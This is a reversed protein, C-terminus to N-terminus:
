FPIEDDDFKGGPMQGTIDYVTQAIEDFGIGYEMIMAAIADPYRRILDAIQREEAAKARSDNDDFAGGFDGLPDGRHNRAAVEGIDHADRIGYTERLRALEERPTDLPRAIGGRYVNPDDRWDFSDVEGPARACVLDAPNLILLAARLSVLFAVDLSERPSHAGAYGVSLNSCEGILDTYNATDTFLGTADPRFTGGLTAALSEAFTDSATRGGQHTIVSDVGKRDLAIAARIGKLADPRHTAIFDSGLGGCEEGRHFVYFGPKGAAIMEFALWLGAGDDAGLCNAKAKPSLTVVDRAKRIAQRGGDRHVTDIHVSWLIDDGDGPIVLARNGFADSEMGPISDIFDRAFAAEAKSKHPRKTELIAMLSEINAGDYAARRTSEIIAPAHAKSFQNTM